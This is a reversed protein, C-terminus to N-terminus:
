EEDLKLEYSIDARGQLDAVLRDYYDRSARRRLNEEMRQRTAADLEDISGNNVAYLSFVGYDGNTMKTIGSVAQDPTPRPSKFVQGLLTVPVSVDTRQVAEKKNLEYGDAVLDISEGAQLRVLRGEAEAKTKAAAREQKIAEIVEEQVDELLQFSAERHDAVRLVISQEQDLEILESNNHEVLVDEGFAAATVKPSQLVGQGGNRTIWDSQKIELQLESAAPELSSPDEYSLNSLLEAQEFYLREGESKRYAQEIEAQAEAFSKISAAKIGTLKILHFGFSSRVPDSVEGEELAFAAEEFAPDMIDKGFYGLDGGQEASGPDESNAKALEAFDEGQSTRLQLEKIKILAETMSAQDADEDLRILIHSAQREEPVGFRELNDDYFGRLSTENVEVTKGVMEGNLHIYELKVQEPTRYNAQHQDYYAKIDEDSIVEDSAFDAKPLIFYDIKRTQKLLRVTEKLEYDTVFVSGQVAQSLQDSLLNQRIREAFGNASVGQRRAYREFKEQEFQGNKKFGEFGLIVQQVLPDGARLGMEHSSQMIVDDRVMRKLLEQRMRKDDFLEPRYAAGLQDRLNQLYRQYHQDLDRETIENGNVEAVVMESANGLYSQIGWLAFTMSLLIVIVWAIWGQAKDRINQLM